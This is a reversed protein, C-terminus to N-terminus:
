WSFHFLSPPLSPNVSTHMRWGLSRNSVVLMMVGMISLWSSVRSTAMIICSNVDFKFMCEGDCCPVPAFSPFLYSAYLFYSLALMM